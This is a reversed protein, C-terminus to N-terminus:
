ILGGSMVGADPQLFGSSSMSKPNRLLLLIVVAKISFASLLVESTEKAARLVATEVVVLLVM